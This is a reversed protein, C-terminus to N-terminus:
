PEETEAAPISLATDIGASVARQAKREILALWSKFDEFSEPSLHAPWQLVAEGEAMSFVDERVETTASM